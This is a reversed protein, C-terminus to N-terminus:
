AATQLQQLQQMIEPLSSNEDDERPPPLVLAITESLDGVTHYCEDFLWSALSAAEMCWVKMLTSNVLRKPRRGTFLAILWLKDADPVEQLYAILADRKDNTRTTNGLRTFLRSFRQM